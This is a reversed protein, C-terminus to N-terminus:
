IHQRASYRRSPPRCNSLKSMRVFCRLYIIRVRAAHLQTQLNNILRDKEEIEDLASIQDQQLQLLQQKLESEPLDVASVATTQNARQELIQLQQQYQRLISQIHQQHEMRLQDGQDGLLQLSSRMKSNDAELVQTKAKSVSILNFLLQALLFRCRHRRLIAPFLM